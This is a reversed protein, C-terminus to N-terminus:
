LFSEGDGRYTTAEDVVAGGSVLLLSNFRECVEGAKAHRLFIPDGLGLRESGNYAIPTQVEGAGELTLLRAGVPLYPRPLKEPGAAGSAVYGGGMCTYLGARPQRVIEIAFGAAPLYRFDRYLDFLAPSYFASGVTIETVEPEERTSDVSGTGGGNVFRLSIGLSRIMEVLAARRAAVQTRSRRKLQRVLASKLRQGPVNDGVGAIQAEYGMIATLEVDSSGAIREVLTRAQGVDRVPSRWVGFHLGPIDLSMDMELCLPLRVGYQRAAHEAREVHEQCDVMLTIQAGSATARAVTALDQEGVVPYGILLDEFGQGALYAAERATFCMLGQFREDSALLRRLLVVSRVSKSAIRVRKDRARARVQRANEDLLDLDVFAFPMARGAFAARYSGYDRSTPRVVADADAAASTASSMSANSIQESAM